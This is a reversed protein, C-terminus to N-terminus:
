SSCSECSIISKPKAVPKEAQKKVANTNKKTSKVKKYIGRKKEIENIVDIDLGFSIPDIAPQTKLYYMGTKLGGKWGYFHATTMKDFDPIPCFMNFSQSQDIFPGREISQILIPRNQLEFATKYIKKINDPISDINQVSGKDYLLENQVNKNWIGLEILKEVLYKNIVTFEGALTTRTCVNSIPAEYSETNGMIQSTSATPMVTTLLSNRTGFKIISDILTDWDYDMLLDEKKLGWMHWQLQGKSFPCGGNHHFTEYPGHKIALENSMTLAGFYITESIKRNIIRAEESDYPVEMLCYVDALGQIGIGIPRHKFNSMKAKEVPYFNIDIVRNLNRAVIGAVYKLKEYNFTPVGNHKEVFRPLCISSLNCCAIEETDTYEVIETCNSTLVGNFMGMHRKEETFCYTDELIDLYEIKSIVNPMEHLPTNSINCITPCFKSLKNLNKVNICLKYCNNENCYSVNSDIGCCQLVLRIKSVYEKDEYNTDLINQKNHLNNLWNIIYNADKNLPVENIDYDTDLNTDNNIVKKKYTKLKYDILEDGLVLDECNKVIFNSKNEPNKIYFKHEPTCKLEVGNSITVKMLKKNTGTQKVTVPSWEEGNWVNVKTNVVDRIIVQGKDTLIYTDGSVCLNSSQIVGLNSQNSKRNVHDKYLMYPMGTEIQQELIHFWLDKALIQKRYMKKNEYEIYLKEFEEGYVTTLGPCENPCMLSWHGGEEVRKMFLDPIWLGLFMDRAREEEKGKNSRLECFSFIDAHWVELYTSIAGNRKGGQNVYRALWNLVQIMPVIGTSEGNTGVIKSGTARVDSISIGIGGARKSILGSEKVVDLIHDLSDGMKLLFCSSLQPYKSAANYLTPSGFIFYRNSLCEYTEQLEPICTMNLSIAVRMLLHQPREIIKIQKKGNEVYKIKQLYSKELTKFGFYDFDYDKSYNLVSQIDQINECVFNYYETTVLESDYLQQTTVMFDPDTMKHLRSVCLASALKDYQPDDRIKDSCNTAAYHDIDETTIGDHLGVITDKTVEFANIRTLNLESCQVEIRKLIKDFSVPEKFGGRKIVNMYSKVNSQSNNM